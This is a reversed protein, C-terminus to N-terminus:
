KPQYWQQTNQVGAAVNMATPTLKSPYATGNHEFVGMLRRVISGQSANAPEAAHQTGPEDQQPPTSSGASAAQQMSAVFQIAKALDAAPLSGPDFGASPVSAKVPPSAPSTPSSNSADVKDEDEKEKLAALAAKFREKRRKCEVERYEHRSCAIAATLANLALMSGSLANATWFLKM